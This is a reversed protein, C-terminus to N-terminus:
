RPSDKIEEVVVRSPFDFRELDPIVRAILYLDEKTMPSTSADPGFTGPTFDSFSVVVDDPSSM